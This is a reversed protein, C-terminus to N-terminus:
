LRRVSGSFHKEFGAIQIRSGNGDLNPLPDQIGNSFGQLSRFKRRAPWFPLIGGSNAGMPSGRVPFPGM